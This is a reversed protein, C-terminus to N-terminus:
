NKNKLQSKSSSQTPTPKDKRLVSKDNVELVHEEPTGPQKPTKNAKFETSIPKLDYAKRGSFLDSKKTLQEDGRWNFGKLTRANPPIDKEPYTKDEPQNYYYIDIIQRNEFLLKITSALAKNIGFLDGNDERIYYITETNKVVNVEYLENKEFLGYLYKGKVQNYGEISDKQIMFSNNYVKLSDLAETTPDNILLITDGTIQNDQSWIIPNGMLKTYGTKEDLHLSDAKGSMDFKYLRVDYFANVRRSKAPGTITLTDSAIFVSDQQQLSAIYPTKTVIVSDKNKFVEAYNGYLTSANATDVVRIRNTASAYNRKRNFYISDGYLDRQDYAVKAQEVFYGQDTKTDYYGRYCDVIASESIIRSKGYLYAHGTDPYFDIQQSTIQYDPNTVKVNQRFSYKKEPMNYTGFQSTITSASDKVTGGSRYFAKQQQRDFFLSDSTLTTSPTTLKVDQSAFAFKTNGDYEAYASRMNITDGQNMTVHGFARFFNDTQYFVAQDCWVEIGEHKFYVQQKAKNFLLAGPYKQDDKSTRDSEYYIERDQAYSFSVLVSFCLLFLGKM